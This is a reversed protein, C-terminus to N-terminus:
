AFFAFRASLTALCLLRRSATGIAAAVIEVAVVIEVVTAAASVVAAVAAIAAASAAVAKARPEPLRKAFRFSAVM